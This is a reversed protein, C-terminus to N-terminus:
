YDSKIFDQIRPCQHIDEPSECHEVIKGADLYYVRDMIRKVFSMDQSSLGVTLGQSVLRKLITMLIETNLPDLSATPEDLLLVQPKLCLARAIAVRQQQGGSLQSPYKHAHELMGLEQLLATIRESAETAPIAHVELPDLCNQWVTLHPFLNFDQFVYGVTEARQTRSLNSLEHNNLKIAGATPTILGAITKLLTTKGAGSKGIFLTIRGAPLSCSVNDLFLQDNSILTVANLSVM